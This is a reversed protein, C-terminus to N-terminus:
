HSVEIPIVAKGARRELSNQRFQGGLQRLKGVVTDAESPAVLLELRQFNQENSLSYPKLSRQSSDLMQGGHETTIAELLFLMNAPALRFQIAEMEAQELHSLMTSVEIEKELGQEWSATLPESPPRIKQNLASPIKTTANAKKSAKTASRTPAELVEKEFAQQKKIHQHREIASGTPLVIPNIDPLPNALSPQASQTAPPSTTIMWILACAAVAIVGVWINNNAATAKEQHPDASIEALVNEMISAPAEAELAGLADKNDLMTQLLEALEPDEIVADRLPSSQEDNPDDIM